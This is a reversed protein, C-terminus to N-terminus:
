RARSVLLKDIRLGDLDVVEFRWGAHALTEGLTPLRRMRDLVFGAVTDFDGEPRRLGLRDAFEDIPMWGAVLWSGDERAIMAPEEEDEPAVFTGTIAELLDMPSVVGQFHGYEDHVLVLHARSNRMHGIVVDAGAVDLVVPAPRVLDRLPRDEPNWALLDRAAVVGLIDDPGGDRVPLRSRRAALAQARITEVPDALDIMEVERRPTMLARASRDAVRMVGAIMEREGPALIGAREAEAITMRVEDDTMRNEAEGSQGILRLVTQGSLDLFWVVPTTLRAILAMAPAMRAAMAEPDRLAIQKPVLEGVILSLYTIAAVVLGVGAPGAVQDPVGAEALALSLRQGLTAGSVAGSLVGVLTIGIQVTSLFRGPDQQLDLAVAAGRRGDEALVKLRAARASVIALESLALAGNCLTLMLVIAIELIM